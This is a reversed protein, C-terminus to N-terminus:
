YVVPFKMNIKPHIIIKLEELTWNKLNDGNKPKTRMCYSFFQDKDYQKDLISEKILKQKEIIDDNLEEHENQPNNNEKITEKLESNDFM